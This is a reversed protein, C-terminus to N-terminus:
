EDARVDRGKAIAEIANILAERHVPKELILRGESMLGAAEDSIAGTLFLFRRALFPRVRTVEGYLEIGGVGPMNLDCIIVDPPQREMLCRMGDRSDSFTIIDHYAALMRRLPALLAAEDEIIIISLRRGVNPTVLDPTPTRLFDVMDGRNRGDRWRRLIVTVVTGRGLQSELTISGDMKKILDRSISLGLGTGCGIPKTTFFPDFIRRVNEPAVGCGNDSVRITVAADGRDVVVDIRGRGIESISQSSNILLNLLVQRLQDDNGRAICEEGGRVVVDARGAIERDVLAVVSRVVAGVDVPGLHPRGPHSFIRLQRVLRSIRDIGGRCETVIRALEDLSPVRECTGGKRASELWCEILEFDPVIFALPNNIEHAIGATLLGISAMKEVQVLQEQSQSVRTLDSEIQAREAMLRANTGELEATRERLRRDFEGSLRELEAAQRANERMLHVHHMARLLAMRLPEIAQDRVVYDFAGHHIASLMDSTRAVSSLMIVPTSLARVRLTTLLELGTMEPMRTETVIVDVPQSELAALAARGSGVTEVQFGWDAILSGVYDRVLKSDDVLLVQGGMRPL